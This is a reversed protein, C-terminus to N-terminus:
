LKCYVFITQFLIQSVLNREKEKISSYSFLIKWTVLFLFYILNYIGVTKNVTIRTSRFLNLFEWLKALCGFYWPYSSELFLISTHDIWCSDMCQSGLEIIRWILLQWLLIDNCINTLCLEVFILLKGKYNYIIQWKRFLYHNITKLKMDYHIYYLPKNFWTNRNNIHFQLTFWFCCITYPHCALLTKVRLTKSWMRELQLSYSYCTLSPCSPKLVEVGDMGTNIAFNRFHSHYYNANILQINDFFFKLNSNLDTERNIEFYNFNFIEPYSGFGSWKWIKQTVFSLNKLNCM